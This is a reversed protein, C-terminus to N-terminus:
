KKLWDDFDRWLSKFYDNVLYVQDYFWERARDLDAHAMYRDFFLWFTLGFFIVILAVLRHWVPPEYVVSCVLGGLGMVMIVLSHKMCICTTKGMNNAIFICMGALVASSLYFFNLLM